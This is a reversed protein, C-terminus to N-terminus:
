QNKDSTLLFKSRRKLTLPSNLGVPSVVILRERRRSVGVLQASQWNCWNRPLGRIVTELQYKSSFNRHSSLQVFYHIFLISLSLSYLQVECTLYSALLDVYSENKEKIEFEKVLPQKEDDEMKM